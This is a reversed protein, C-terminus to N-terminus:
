KPSPDAMIGELLAKIEKNSFQSKDFGLSHLNEKVRAPFKKPNEQVMQYLTEFIAKRKAEADPVEPVPVTFWVDKGNEKLLAALEILANANDAIKHFMKHCFDLTLVCLPGNELAHVLAPYNSEYLYIIGEIKGLEVVFSSDFIDKPEVSSRVEPPFEDLAIQRFHAPHWGVLRKIEPHKEQEKCLEETLRNVLNYEAVLQHMVESTVPM